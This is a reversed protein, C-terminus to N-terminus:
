WSRYCLLQEGQGAVIVAGAYGVAAELNHMTWRAAAAESGKVRLLRAPEKPLLTVDFSDLPCSLGEGIVKIFAEKRTWCNFFAQPKQTDPVATFVAVEGASFFREAIQVADDLPRIQEIDVGVEREHAFALLAVGQAHSLNFQVGSEAFPVALAPKGHEGYAFGIETPAVHLYHSLLQRLLGRAAVYHNRDREFYFRNARDQEDDALHEWLQNLQGQPKNLSAVWVHLDNKALTFNAPPLPWSSHFSTM